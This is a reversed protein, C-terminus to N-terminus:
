VTQLTPTGDCGQIGRGVRKVWLPHDFPEDFVQAAEVHQLPPAAARAM